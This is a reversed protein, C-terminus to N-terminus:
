NSYAFDAGPQPAVMTVKVKFRKTFAPVSTAAMSRPSVGLLLNPDPVQANPGRNAFTQPAASSGPRTCGALM